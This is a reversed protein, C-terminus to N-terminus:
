KCKCQRSASYCEYARGAYECTANQEYCNNWEEGKETWNEGCSHDQYGGVNTGTYGGQDYSCTYDLCTVSSGSPTCTTTGSCDSKSTKGDCNWDWSGCANTFTHYGAGPHSGGDSDCCDTYPHSTAQCTGTHGAAESFYNDGDGDTGCIASCCDSDSSCSEGNATCTALKVQGAGADVTINEKSAIKTEDTYTDTVSDAYILLATFILLIFLSTIWTIPARIKIKHSRFFKISM